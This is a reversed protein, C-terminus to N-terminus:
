CRRSVDVTTELKALIRLKGRERVTYMKLLLSFESCDAWLGRSTNVQNVPVDLISSINLPHNQRSVRIM